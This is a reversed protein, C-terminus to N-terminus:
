KRTKIRVFIDSGPEICMEMRDGDCLNRTPKSETVALLVPKKAHCVPCQIELNALEVMSVTVPGVEDDAM